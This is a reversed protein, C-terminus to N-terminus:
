YGVMKNNLYFIPTVRFWDDTKNTKGRLRFETNVMKNLRKVLVPVLGHLLKHVRLFALTTPAPAFRCLACACELRLVSLVCM